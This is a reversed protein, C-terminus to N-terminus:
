VKMEGPEYQKMKQIVPLLIEEINAIVDDKIQKKEIGIQEMIEQLAINKNKLDGESQQLATEARKRITIDSGVSQIEIIQGAENFIAKNSWSQWREEKNLPLIAPGEHMVVQNDLSLLSLKSKIEGQERRSSFKLFSIGILQSRSMGYYRCYAENVFTLVTDPRYRCILETAIEVVARYEKESAMLAQETSKWHIESVEFADLREKLEKIERCLELETNLEDKM